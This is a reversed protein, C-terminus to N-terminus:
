PVSIGLPECLSVAYDRMAEPDATKDGVTFTGAALQQLTAHCEERQGAKQSAKFQAVFAALAPNAAICASDNVLDVKYTTSSPSVILWHVDPLYDLQNEDRSNFVKSLAQCSAYTPADWNPLSATRSMAPNGAAETPRAAISTESGCATLPIALGVAMLAVGWRREISPVENVM